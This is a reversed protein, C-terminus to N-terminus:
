ALCLSDTFSCLITTQVSGPTEVYVPLHQVDVVAPLCDCVFQWAFCLQYFGLGRYRWGSSFPSTGSVCAVDVFGCEPFSHRLLVLVSGLTVCVLDVSGPASAHVVVDM